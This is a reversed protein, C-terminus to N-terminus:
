THGARPASPLAPRASKSNRIRWIRARNYRQLMIAYVDWILVAFFVVALWVYEKRFYLWVMIALGVALTCLHRFENSRTRAEWEIASNFDKVNRFGPDSRRRRTNWYDGQTAFRKYWRIGLREYFRGDREFDWLEFCRLDRMQQYHAPERLLALIALVLAPIRWNGLVQEVM